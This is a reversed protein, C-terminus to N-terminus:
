KKMGNESTDFYGHERLFETCRSLGKALHQNATSVSINLQTSIEKHTLGYVKRLIFVRRCQLPLDRISDCLLRFKEKSEFDVQASPNTPLRGLDLISDIDETPRLIARERYKFALNRATQFLYARFDQIKTNAQAQRARVFTEQVIDEVDQPRTGHRRAVFKLSDYSALFVDEISGEKFSPSRCAQKRIKKDVKGM